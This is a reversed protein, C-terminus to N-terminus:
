NKLLYELISQMKDILINSDNISFYLPPKIKLVNDYPGDTGILINKERLQNKIQYALQTNPKGKRDHLEIGLFLGSGRVDAVEPYIRGLKKLQDKLYDGTKKAQYQLSEEDIVELVAKGIACSVPNGGFSSFFEMGNNFSEAIATTTVVAGIPHGNGMPKGLIVMDPIVDYMEYGWFSGGLRGFGVQVEDSICIGGQERIGAYVKKLYGKALPVQGGCGVIPEAIFAAIENSNQTIAKHAIEAFHTGATGDDEYGSGFVKPMPTEIIYSRKGTGGKHHYKYHSIDIGMRTNGHYGHEVVMIKNKKTHTTAMRIALDTAASGSNVFFIKNLHSPFKSLLMESYALLEDYIYRTNTNLRAMTRQGARVVKPHCHGVLMINNYADLITNGHTDYMFQFASRDMQIPKDYSLSLTGSFHAQRRKLQKKLLKTPKSSFGAANLFCTTAHIPNISLWKRLLSWASRESITIYESNPKVTKAYASNCVSTCLRAAVLYYIAEIEQANLPLINHYAKIVYASIKLPEEKNMMVYTLAVVLENILWTHSMDGFDIIGSIHDNNTLVNWDNADNHILSKRLLFQVPRINEEYQMFFYDVLSKDQPDTIYQLYPFNKSFHQLDWQTEKAKLAPNYTNLLVKDMQGLFRGFSTLLAPSHEVDGLFVGEVFSLLRFIFGNEVILPENAISSIPKPFDYAKQENLHELIKNESDLLELVEADFTYKKLVFLGKDCEIKYNISEYGELSTISATDISFHKKLIAKIMGQNKLQKERL